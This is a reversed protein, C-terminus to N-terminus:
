ESRLDSKMGEFDAPMFGSDFLPVSVVDMSKINDGIRAIVQADEDETDYSAITSMLKFLSGNLHVVKADRDDQYREQFERVTKSQGLAFGLGIFLAFVTIVSKKM